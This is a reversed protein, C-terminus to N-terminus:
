LFFCSLTVSSQITCRLQGAVYLMLRRVGASLDKMVEPFNVSREVAMPTANIAVGASAVVAWLAFAGRASAANLESAYAEWAWCGYSALVITPQSPCDSPVSGSGFMRKWNIRSWFKPPSQNWSRRMVCDCLGGRNAAEKREAFASLADFTSAAMGKAASITARKTEEAGPNAFPPLLLAPFPKLLADSWLDSGVDAFVLFSDELCPLM